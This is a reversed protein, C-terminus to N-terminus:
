AAELVRHQFLLSRVAFPVELAFRSEVFAERNQYWHAILLKMAHKIAEPM